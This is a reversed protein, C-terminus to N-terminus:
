KISDMEQSKVAYHIYNLRTLNCERCLSLEKALSPPSTTGEGSLLFTPLGIFLILLSLLKSM